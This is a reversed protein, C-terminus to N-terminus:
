IRADKALVGRQVQREKGGQLQRTLTGILQASRLVVQHASRGQVCSPTKSKGAPRGTQEEPSAEFVEEGPFGDGTTEPLILPGTDM